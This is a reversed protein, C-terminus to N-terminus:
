TGGLDTVMTGGAGTGGIVPAVCKNGYLASFGKYGGPEDPLKDAVAHSSRTCGSDSAQACHIAIGEYDAAEQDKYPDPDSNYQAVEPSDAGFVVPLDTGPNEM